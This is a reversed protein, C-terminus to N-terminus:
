LTLRGGSLEFQFPHVPCCGTTNRGCTCMLPQTNTGSCYHCDCHCSQNTKGERQAQHIDQCRDCTM